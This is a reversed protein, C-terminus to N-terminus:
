GFKYQILFNSSQNVPVYIIIIFRIERWLRRQHAQSMATMRSHMGPESSQPGFITKKRNTSIGEQEIATRLIEEPPRYPVLEPRLASTRRQEDQQEQKQVFDQFAKVLQEHPTNAVREARPASQEKLYNNNQTTLERNPRAEGQSEKM